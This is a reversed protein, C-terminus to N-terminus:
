PLRAAPKRGRAALLEAILAALSEAGREVAVRQSLYWLPTAEHPWVPGLKIADKLTCVVLDASEARQALKRADAEDFAHHDPFRAPSILHVGAASLQAEFASPDGIGSVAIIRKGRLTDLPLSQGGDHTRLGAPALRAVAVTVGPAAQRIDALTQEIDAHSAAKCTVVAIRARRLSRLPERWPGAPLPWRSRRSGDASILVVDADRGARRHQMADDLVLVDAGRAIAAKAGRVRDADAIVIAGPTLLGHLQAEDGGYGRLVIGPHGGRASVEAAFWNALPTKGTGGVTLNGISVSPAGLEHTALAGIDFLANRVSMTARFVAALPLLAVRAARAGASSSEWLWREDAM